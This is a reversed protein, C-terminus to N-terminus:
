TEIASSGLLGMKDSMEIIPIMNIEISVLYSESM